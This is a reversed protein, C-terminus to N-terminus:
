QTAGTGQAMRAMTDSRRQLVIQMAAVEALDAMTLASFKTPDVVINTGGFAISMCPSLNRKAELFGDLIKQGGDKGKGVIEFVLAGDLNHFKVTILGKGLAKETAADAKTVM